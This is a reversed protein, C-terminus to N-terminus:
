SALLALPVILTTLLVLWLSLGDIGVHYDVRLGGADIWRAKGIFQYGAM